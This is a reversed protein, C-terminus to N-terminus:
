PTELPGLWANAVTNHAIRFLWARFSAGENRFSGLGRLAAMFTRATADEADHHDGLQYFAYSYVADLYRRYLAAFAASDRQAAGVAELDPDSAGSREEDPLDLAPNPKAESV